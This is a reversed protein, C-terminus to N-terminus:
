QTVLVDCPCEALLHLTVSGLLLRQALSKGHRGVVVVDAGLALAAERLAIAPRSGHEIVAHTRTRDLGSAELFRAMESEAQARAKRRYDEVIEEAINAYLLRNEFPSEFVHAVHIEAGPAVAAAAALARAAGASFDVGVLACRYPEIVNRRAVLTPKRTQRLLREATTGVALDRLPHSGRAGIVLLDFARSMELLAQVPRGAAVRAQLAFGTQAEVSALLEELQRQATATASDVSPPPAGALSRLADVWGQEVVHVAVGRGAGTARCVAAAREVAFRADPSFDTAALVSSIRKM